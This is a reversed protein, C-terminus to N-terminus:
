WIRAERTFTNSSDGTGYSGSSGPVIGGGWAEEWGEEEWVASSPNNSWSSSIMLLASSESESTFFTRLSEPFLARESYIGGFREENGITVRCPEVIYFKM